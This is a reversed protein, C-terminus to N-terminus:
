CVLDLINLSYELFGIQLLYITTPTGAVMVLWLNLTKLSHLKLQWGLNAQLRQNM